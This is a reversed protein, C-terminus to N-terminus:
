ASKVPSKKAGNKSDGSKKEGSKKDKAAPSKSSDGSGSGSDSARSDSSQSDSGNSDSSKSDSSSSDGNSSSEERAKSRSGSGSDNKYFGSGKLVIGVPSLVKALKGGCLSHRKLPEESFTQYVELDDGCKACRYVYTPM